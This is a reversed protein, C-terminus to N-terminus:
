NAPQFDTILSTPKHYWSYFDLWEPYSPSTILEYEQQNETTRVIKSSIAGAKLGNTVERKINATVQENTKGSYPDFRTFTVDVDVPYDAVGWWNEQDILLFRGHANIKHDFMDHEIASHKAKENDNFDSYQIVDGHAASYGTIKWPSDKPVEIATLSAAGIYPWLATSTSYAANAVMTVMMAMAAVGILGDYVRDNFALGHQPDYGFPYSLVGWHNHEIAPSDPTQDSETTYYRNLKLGYLEMHRYDIPYLAPKLTTLIPFSSAFANPQSFIVLTFLLSRLATKAQNKTTIILLM